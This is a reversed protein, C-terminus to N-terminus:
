PEKVLSQVRDSLVSHPHQTLFIGALASARSREGLGILAEIRLVAAEQALASGAFRRAHEELQELAYRHQGRHVAAQAKELLAVEAALPTTQRRPASAPAAPWVSAGIGPPSVDPVAVPALASVSVSQQDVTSPLDGAQAKPSVRDDLSLQRVVPRAPARHLRPTQVVEPEAAQAPPAAIPEPMVLAVSPARTTPTRATIRGQQVIPHGAPARSAVKYVVAGSGTAAVVASVIVWAKVGSFSTVAGAASAAASALSVAVPLGLMKLTRGRAEPPLRYSRAAKFLAAAAADDEGLRRPDNTM